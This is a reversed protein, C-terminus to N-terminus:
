VESEATISGQAKPFNSFEGIWKSIRNILDPTQDGAIRKLLALRWWGKLTRKFPLWKRHQLHSLLRGSWGDLATIGVLQGRDGNIAVYRAGYEATTLRYIAM